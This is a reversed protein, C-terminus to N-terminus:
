GKPPSLGALQRIEISGGELVNPCTKAHTVAEDFTNANIVSYGGVIEKAEVFPGDTVVLNRDVVRSEPLLADGADLLWGEAFGKGIWKSWRDMSQQMQEPAVRDARSLRHAARVLDLAPAISEVRGDVSLAFSIM